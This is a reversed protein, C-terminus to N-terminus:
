FSRNLVMEKKGRQMLVRDEPEQSGSNSYLAEPRLRGM